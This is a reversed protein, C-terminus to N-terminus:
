SQVLKGQQDVVHFDSAVGKRIVALGNQSMKDLLLTKGVLDPERDCKTVRIAQGAYMPTGWGVKISYLNTVASEVANQLTTTQVLAPIDHKVETLKRQAEFGVTEIEGVDFLSIEDEFISNELLRSAETLIPTLTGM